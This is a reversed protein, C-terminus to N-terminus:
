KGGLRGLDLVTAFVVLILLLGLGVLHFLAEKHRNFPKRRVGEIAYILLRSGDLMPIPLLNFVAIWANLLASFLLYDPWGSRAAQSVAQAIGVPGSIERLTVRGGFLQGLAWVVSGILQGTKETAEAGAEAIGIRRFVPEVEIGIGLRGMREGKRVLLQGDLHVDTKVLIGEPRVKFTLERGQRAVKVGIEEDPHSSIVRIIDEQGHVPIGAISVIRDGPRLPSTAAPSGREISAITPNKQGVVEGWGAFIIFCLILALALNMAAGGAIVLLRQPVPKEHFGGSVEEEGPEMGAIRVYGAVPLLRIAYETEARRFKVLPPGVGLSYALVRMRCLKALLFHGTEHFMLALGFFLVVALVSTLLQHNM